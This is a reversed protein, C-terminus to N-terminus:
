HTRPRSQSRSNPSLTSQSIPRTTWPNRRERLIEQVTQSTNSVKQDLFSRNQRALNPHTYMCKTRLCDDGDTCVPAIRHEYRCQRNTQEEYFCRGYNTFYHCIRRTGHIPTIGEIRTPRESAIRLLNQQVPTVTSSPEPPFTM